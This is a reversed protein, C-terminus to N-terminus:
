NIYTFHITNKDGSKGKMLIKNLCLMRLLVTENHIHTNSFVVASMHRPESSRRTPQNATLDREM